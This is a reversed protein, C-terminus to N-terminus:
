DLIRIAYASLMQTRAFEASANDLHGLIIANAGHLAAEKQMIGIVEVFLCPGHGSVIGIEEYTVEGPPDYFIKVDGNFPPYSQGIKIFKAGACGSLSLLIAIAIITLIANKM